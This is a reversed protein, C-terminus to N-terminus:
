HFKGAKGLHSEIFVRFMEHSVYDTEIEENEKIDRNKEYVM